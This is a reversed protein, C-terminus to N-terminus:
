DMHFYCQCQEKLETASPPSSAECLGASASFNNFILVEREYQLLERLLIISCTLTQLRDDCKSSFIKTEKFILKNLNVQVCLVQGGWQCCM